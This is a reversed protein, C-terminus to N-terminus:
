LSYNNIFQNIGKIISYKPRYNFFNKIKRNNCVSIKISDSPLSMKKIKNSSFGKKIKSKITKLIIKFFDFLVVGKGNGVNFIEFSYKKKSIIIKFILDCLDYIHIFDRIAKGHDHLIIKKNMLINNTWINLVSPYESIKKQGGYINFLRLISIKIKKQDSFLKLELENFLKTKAYVSKPLTKFKENIKKKGHDGYVASSSAFIFNKVKSNFALNTACHLNIVNMKFTELPNLTSKPVSSQAALHIFNHSIIKKKFTEFKSQYFYFKRYKKKLKKVASRSGSYFNDIGYVKYNKQLLFDAINLGVYGAVGTIICTKDLEIKYNNAM